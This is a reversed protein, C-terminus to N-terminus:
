REYRLGDHGRAVVQLQGQEEADQGGDRWRQAAVDVVHQFAPAGPQMGQEARHFPQDVRRPAHVGVAVVRPLAVGGAQQAEGQRAEAQGEAHQQELVHQRQVRLM